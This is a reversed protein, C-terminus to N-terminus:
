DRCAVGDHGHDRVLRVLGCDDRCYYYNANGYNFNVFWAHDSFGASLSASWYIDATHHPLSTAHGFRDHDIISFLEKISPVRWGNQQLQIAEYYDYRNAEPERKWILNTETDLWDGSETEIYRM